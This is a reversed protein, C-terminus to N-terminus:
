IWHLFYNMYTQALGRKKEEVVVPFLDVWPNTDPPPTMGGLVLLALAPAPAGRVEKHCLPCHKQRRLAFAAGRVDLTLALEEDAPSPHATRFWAQLCELDFSHGCPALTYPQTLRDVCILCQLCDNVDALQKISRITKRQAAAAAEEIALRKAVASRHEHAFLRRELVLFALVCISGFLALRIIPHYDLRLSFIIHYCHTNVDFLYVIEPVEPYEYGAVLSFWGLLGTFAYFFVALTIISIAVTAIPILAVLALCNITTKCAQVFKTPGTFAFILCLPSLAWLSPFVFAPFTALLQVPVTTNMSTTNTNTTNTGTTNWITAPLLTALHM